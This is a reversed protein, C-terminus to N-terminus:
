GYDAEMYVHTAADALSEDDDETFLTLAAMSLVKIRAGKSRLSMRLSYEAENLASFGPQAEQLLSDALHELEYAIDTGIDNASRQSHRVQNADTPLNSVAEM